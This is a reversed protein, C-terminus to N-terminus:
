GHRVVLTRKIDDQDDDGSILTVINEDRTGAPAGGVKLACTYSQTTPVDCFTNGKFGDNGVWTLKVKDGRSRDVCSVVVEFIYGEMAAPERPSAEVSVISLKSRINVEEEFDFIERDMPIDGRETRSSESSAGYPYQVRTTLEWTDGFFEPDLRMDDCIERLDRRSTFSNRSELISCAQYSREFAAECAWVVRDGEETGDVGWDRVIAACIENRDSADRLFLSADFEDCTSDVREVAYGCTTQVDDLNEDAAIPVWFDYVGDGWRREGDNDRERGDDRSKTGAVSGSRARNGDRVVYDLMVVADDGAPEGDCDVFEVKVKRMTQSVAIKRAQNAFSQLDRDDQGARRLNSRSGSGNESSSGEGVGDVPSPDQESLERRRRRRRAIADLDVTATDYKVGEFEIDFDAFGNSRYDVRMDYRYRTSLFRTPRSNSKDAYVAYFDDDDDNGGVQVTAMDVSELDFSRDEHTGYWAVELDEVCRESGSGGCRGSRVELDATLVKRNLVDGPSRFNRGKFFGDPPGPIPPNTRIPPSTMPPRGSCKGLSDRPHNIMHKYADFHTVRATKKSEEGPNHCITVLNGGFQGCRGIKDKQARYRWLQKRAVDVTKGDSCVPVKDSAAVLVLLRSNPSFLLLLLAPLNRLPRAAM